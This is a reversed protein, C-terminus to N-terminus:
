VQIQKEVHLWSFHDEGHNFHQNLLWWSELVQAGCQVQLWTSIWGHLLCHSLNSSSCRLTMLIMRTIYGLPLQEPIILLIGWAIKPQREALVLLDHVVSKRLSEYVLCFGYEPPMSMPMECRIVISVIPYKNFSNEMKNPSGFNGKLQEGPQWTTNCLAVAISALAIVEVGRSSLVANGWICPVECGFPAPVQMNGSSDKFFFGLSFHRTACVFGVATDVDYQYWHALQQKSSTQLSASEAWQLLLPVWDQWLFSLHISRSVVVWALNCNGHSWSKFAKLDGAGPEQYGQAAKQLRGWSSFWRMKKVLLLKKRCSHFEAPWTDACLKLGLSSGQKTCHPLVSIYIYLLFIYIYLIQIYIYRWSIHM